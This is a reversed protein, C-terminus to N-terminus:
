SKPSDNTNLINSRTEKSLNSLFLGLLERSVLGQFKDSKRLIKRRRQVVCCIHACDINMHVVFNPACTASGLGYMEVFNCIIRLLFIHAITLLFKLWNTSVGVTSLIM